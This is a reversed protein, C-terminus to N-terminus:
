ETITFHVMDSMAHGDKSMTTWAIMYTGAGLTPLPVDFATAMAKTPTYDLAIEKGDAGTLKVKALGIKDASSVTISAPAEALEANNAISATAPDSHAFAAPAALLLSAALAAAYLTKRASM